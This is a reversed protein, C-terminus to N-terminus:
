EVLPPLIGNMSVGSPWSTSSLSRPLFYHKALLGTLPRCWVSNLFTCHMHLAAVQAPLRKTALKRNMIQRLRIQNSQASMRLEASLAHACSTTSESIARGLPTLPGTRFAFATVCCLACSSVSDAAGFALFEFDLWARDCR